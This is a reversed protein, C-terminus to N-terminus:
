AKSINTDIKGDNGDDLTEYSDTIPLKHEYTTMRVTNLVDFGDLESNLFEYSQLQPGLRGLINGADVADGVMAFIRSFMGIWPYRTPYRWSLGALPLQKQPFYQLADVSLLKVSATRAWTGNDDKTRTDVVDGMKIVKDLIYPLYSDRVSRLAFVGNRTNHTVKWKSGRPSVGFSKDTKNVVLDSDTVDVLCTPMEGVVQNVELLEKGVGDFVPTYFDYKTIADFAPNLTNTYGADPVVAMLTVLFGSEDNKYKHTRGMNYAEGRGGREGLIMGSGDKLTDSLSTVQSFEVAFEDHAIFRAKCHDVWEGYGQARLLQEVRKGAITEVNILQYMKKLIESDLQGHIIKQIYLHQSNGAGLDPSAAQIGASTNSPVMIADDQGGGHSFTQLYDNLNQGATPNPVNTVGTEQASVFDQADTVWMSGLELVFQRFTTPNPSATTVDGVRFLSFSGFAFNFDSAVSDLAGLSSYNYLLSALPTSEYNTYALLGFCEFYAKFVAFIPMLSVKKDYSYFDEQFQAGKFVKYIRKGFANLRFAFAYYVTNNNADTFPREILVDAGRISVPTIDVGRLNINLQFTDSPRYDVLTYMDPNALPITFKSQRLSSAVVNSNVFTPCDIITRADITLGYTGFANMSTSLDLAKVSADTSYKAQINTNLLTSLAQLENAVDTTQSNDDLVLATYKRTGDASPVVKYVTLFSGWLMLTSLLSRYCWPLTTPVGLSPSLNMVSNKVKPTESFIEKFRDFLDSYEVFYSWFECKCHGYTPAVIPELYMKSEISFTSDTDADCHLVQLPQVEGFGCSTYVNRNRPFASKKVGVNAIAVNGLNTSKM